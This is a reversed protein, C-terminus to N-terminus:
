NIWQVIEETQVQVIILAVGFRRLILGFARMQALEDHVAKSLALYLKREPETEELLTLYLAYQGLAEQLDNVPSRGIFSKIEVAIKQGGREAALPLQAALDIYFDEEGYAIRYPDATIIWGDKVLANRVANHIIDRRPM